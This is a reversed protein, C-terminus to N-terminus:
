TEGDFLRAQTAALATIQGSTLAGTFFQIADRFMVEMTLNTFESHRPYSMVIGVSGRVPKGGAVESNTLINVQALYRDTIIGKNETTEQRGIVLEAFKGAGYNHRRTTRGNDTDAVSVNVALANLPVSNDFM